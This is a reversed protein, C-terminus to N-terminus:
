GVLELLTTKHVLILTTVRRKSIIASAVATKGFGPPAILIGYDMKILVNFARKQEERLKLHFKKKEISQISRKDEIQLAAKYKAFLKQVKPTLGRPLIIYRENLDYSTIVRPTNYTSKRLNQRIYFEPNAFSAMQQLRNMVEKALQAKEIYIADYLVAKTHKPFVLPKEEKVAWPM